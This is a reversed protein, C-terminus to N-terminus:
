FKQIMMGYSLHIIKVQKTTGYVDVVARLPLDKHPIDKAWAGMDEGNLIFHMEATEGKVTYMIGIRSGVDTPLINNNTTLQDSNELMEDYFYDTDEKTSSDQMMSSTKHKPLNRM